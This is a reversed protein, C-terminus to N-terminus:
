WCRPLAQGPWCRRWTSGTNGSSMPSFASVGIRMVLEAIGSVMPIGTNGMGQLAFARFIYLLYLIFLFVSMTFLFHYAYTMVADAAEALAIDGEVGGGDYLTKAMDYVSDPHSGCLSLKYYTQKDSGTNRSTGSLLGETVIVLDQKGLQRLWDAANLAACGSGVVVTDIQHIEM